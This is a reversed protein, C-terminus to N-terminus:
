GYVVEGFVIFQIVADSDICDANDDMIHQRLHSPFKPDNLAAVIKDLTITAEIPDPYGEPHSPDDMAVYVEGVKDWSGTTHRLRRWWSGFSQPESGWIRSWLEDADIETIIQVNPM